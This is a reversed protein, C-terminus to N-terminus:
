NKSSYLYIVAIIKDERDKDLLFVWLYSYM